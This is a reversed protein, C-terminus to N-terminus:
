KNAEPQAQSLNLMGALQKGEATESFDTGGKVEANGGSFNHAENLPDPKTQIGLGNFAFDIEPAIEAETMKTDIDKIKSLTIKIKDALERNGGAKKLALNDILAEKQKKNFENQDTELKKLAEEQAEQRQLIEKEKETLLEQEEKTMDRFKKFQLGRERAMDNLKAIEAEKDKIQQALTDAGAKYDGNEKELTTVKGELEAIKEQAKKLEEEM